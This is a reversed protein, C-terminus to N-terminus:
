EVSGSEAEREGEKKRSEPELKGGKAEKVGGPVTQHWLAELVSDRDLLTLLDLIGTREETSKV